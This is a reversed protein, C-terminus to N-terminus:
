RYWKELFGPCKFVELSLRTRLTKDPIIVEIRLKLKIELYKPATHLKYFYKIIPLLKNLSIEVSFILELYINTENEISVSNCNQSYIKM